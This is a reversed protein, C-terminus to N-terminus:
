SENPAGASRLSELACREQEAGALQRALQLRRVRLLLLLALGPALEVPAAARRQLRLRLWFLLLVQDNRAVTRALAEAPKRHARLGVRRARRGDHCLGADLEQAHARLVVVVDYQAVLLFREVPQQAEEAGHREERSQRLVLHQLKGKVRVDFLHGDAGYQRLLDPPLASCCEAFSM